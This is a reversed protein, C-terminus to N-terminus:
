PCATGGSMPSGAAFYATMWRSLDNAGLTGDGNYDSRAFSQGSFYDSLFLSLDGANVGGSGNQDLAAVRVVKLFVGDAYVDLSPGISGPSAGTNTACGIVRLTVRGDSDTFTRVTRSACDVLVNPDSQEACVRLDPCAQFDLVVVQGAHPMGGYDRVVVTFAGLPDPTGSAGCGVLTILDPVVSNAPDPIKAMAQAALSLCLTVLLIATVRIRSM